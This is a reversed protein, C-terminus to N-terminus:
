LRFGAAGREVLAQQRKYADLERRLQRNEIELEAVRQNLESNNSSVRGSQIEARRRAAEHAAKDVDESNFWLGDAAALHARVAENQTCVSKAFDLEEAIVRRNIRNNFAYEDWDRRKNREEIWAIVLAVNEAAIQQGNKGKKM